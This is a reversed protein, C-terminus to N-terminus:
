KSYHQESLRLYNDFVYQQMSKALQVQTDTVPGYSFSFHNGIFDLGFGTSDTIMAIGNKYSYFAFSKASPSLLDKGLIYKDSPLNFQHLLTVALDAQSGIKTIVTDKSLAGGIWLVPIHFKRPEFVESYDPVRTGHDAVMIIISNDWLGAEKFQRVFDGLCSDAYFASSHFKDTLSKNGFKQKVPIEFPEHNSLSLMVRFWHGTDSKCEELFRRYVIHDPVGWKGTRQSSPFDGSSVIKEFNGNVLYSRINAFDVDGGYMFSANYGIQNLDKSVFPMHQTKEPYQLVPISELVPYGSLLSALGKDTRSDSAFINSFLAGEKCLRNFEPTVGRAGGLPEILKATFSELIILVIDPKAIRFLKESHGDSKFLERM